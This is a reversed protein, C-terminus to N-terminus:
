RRSAFYATLDALTQDDLTKMLAKLPRLAEDGPSRRDAKFLLM